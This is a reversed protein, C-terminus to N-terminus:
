IVHGTPAIFQVRCWGVHLGTPHMEICWFLYDFWFRMQGVSIGKPHLAGGFDNMAGVDDMAGDFGVM